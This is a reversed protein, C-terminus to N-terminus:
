GLSRCLRVRRSYDSVKEALVSDTNEDEALQLIETTLTNREAFYTLSTAALFRIVRM